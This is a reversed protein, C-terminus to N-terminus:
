KDYAIELNEESKKAAIRELKRLMSDNGEYSGTVTYVTGSIERKITLEPIWWASPNKVCLNGNEDFRVNRRMAPNTFKVEM